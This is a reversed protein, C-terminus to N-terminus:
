PPARGGGHSLANAHLSLFRDNFPSWDFLIIICSFIREQHKGFWSWKLIGDPKYNQYQHPEKRPLSPMYETEVLQMTYQNEPECSNNNLLVAIAAQITPSGYLGLVKKPTKHSYLMMGCAVFSNIALTLICVKPHNRRCIALRTAQFDHVDQKVNM